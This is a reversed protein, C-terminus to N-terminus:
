YSNRLSIIHALTIYFTDIGISNDTEYVHPFTEVILTSCVLLKVKWMWLRTGTLNLSEIEHNKNQSSGM